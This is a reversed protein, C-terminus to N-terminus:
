NGIKLIIYFCIQVFGFYWLVYNMHTHVYSHSKALVFWSVSTIFFVVYMAPLRMDLSKKKHDNAFIMLPVVCLLGFLNGGVGTVIQTYFHFYQCITEWASATISYDDKYSNLSGAMTIDAGYTRRLADEELIRKVGVGLNGEGRFSAHLLIAMFFGALATVGLIIITRFLINARKRDKKAFMEALDCLLFAIMGMMIVTIYEYGCLCKVLISAFALVYCLKRIRGDDIKWSCLLGIVM